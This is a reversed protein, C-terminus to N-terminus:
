TLNFFVLVLRKLNKEFIYLDVFAIFHIVPQAINYGMSTTLTTLVVEMNCGM